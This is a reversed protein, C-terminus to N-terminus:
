NSRRGFRSDFEMWIEFQKFAVAKRGLELKEPDIQRLPQPLPEKLYDYNPTSKKEIDDLKLSNITNYGKNLERPNATFNALADSNFIFEQSGKGGIDDLELNHILSVNKEREIQNAIFKALVDSDFNLNSGAQYSNLSGYNAKSEDREPDQDKSHKKKSPGSGFVVIAMVALTVIAIIIGEM